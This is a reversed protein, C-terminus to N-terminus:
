GDAPGTVAFPEDEGHEYLFVQRVREDHVDLRTRLMDGGAANSYAVEVSFNTRVRLAHVLTELEPRDLPVSFTLFTEESPLLVNRGMRGSWGADGVRLGLGRLLAVGPGVNVVPVGVDVLRQGDDRRPFLIAGKDSVQISLGGDFRVQMAQPAWVNRPADVILPRISATLQQAAVSAQAQTAQAQERAAELQEQTRRLAEVRDADAQASQDAQHRFALVAAWLAGVTGAAAAWDAATGPDLVDFVALVLVFVVVAVVCGGALSAGHTPKM